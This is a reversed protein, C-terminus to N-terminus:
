GRRAAFSTIWSCLPIRESPLRFDDMRRGRCAPAWEIELHCILRSDGRIANAECDAL